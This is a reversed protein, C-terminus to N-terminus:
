YNYSKCVKPRNNNKVILGEYRIMIKIAKSWTYKSLQVISSIKNFDEEIM